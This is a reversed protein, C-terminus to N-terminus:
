FTVMPHMAHELRQLPPTAAVTSNQIEELIHLQENTLPPKSNDPDIGKFKDLLRQINNRFIKENIKVDAPVTFAALVGAVTAHVRPLLSPSWVGGIGLMAYLLISRVGM